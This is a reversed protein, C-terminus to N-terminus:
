GGSRRLLDRAATSGPALVLAREAERKAGAKDGSDLLANGLAVRATSTERCWIAVKFEDIAQEIQGSRQYIGGLLIHPEDESPVLYIARRLEDTAERDRHQAILDRGRALHFTATERQDRQAPDAIAGAIAAPGVPDLDADLRELGAPVRPPLSTGLAEVGTGLLRALEFERQAEASKGSAQLLLSMVLHADGNTADFRVAEKLANLADAPVQAMAHAYGLNFLYDTNTTDERTARAFYSVASGTGAPPTRRLQVIGLANSLAAARGAAYLTTLEQYAGDFRKLAILSLAVDFRARRYAPSDKGVANAAALAKEDLDQADYVKWLALLIRPDSPAQRMAAELFRQQAAPTAAVLGKMFSEFAELPLPTPAPGAAARTGGTVASVREGLRRFLTFIDALPASDTVPPVERGQGLTIVRVRVNLTEGLRLDGFVIESAGILEGIRIMTARTLPSAPLQLRDFAAMRADRPLARVNFSMLNETLLEAAAEGMWLAAGAGGPASADVQATFPMVLVRSGAGTAPQAFAPAALAVLLAALASARSVTSCVLMM